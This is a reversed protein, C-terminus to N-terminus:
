PLRLIWPQKPTHLSLLCTHPVSPPCRALRFLISHFFVFYLFSLLFAAWRRGYTSADRDRRTACLVHAITVTSWNGLEPVCHSLKRRKGVSTTERLRPFSMCMFADDSANGKPEDLKSAFHTAPDDDSDSDADKRAKAKKCKKAAPEAATQGLAGFVGQFLANVQEQTFKTTQGTGVAAKKRRKGLRKDANEPRNWCGLTNHAATQCDECWKPVKAAPQSSQSKGKKKKKAPETTASTEATQDEGQQDRKRKESGATGAQSIVEQLQGIVDNSQLKKFCERLKSLRLGMPDVNNINLAIQWHFPKARAITGVIEDEPSPRHTHDPNGGSCPFCPLKDSIALLREVFPEFELEGEGGFHLECRV